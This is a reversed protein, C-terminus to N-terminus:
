ESRGDRGKWCYGSGDAWILSPKDKAYAAKLYPIQGEEVEGIYAITKQVVKGKIRKAHVVSAFYHTKGRVDTKERIRMFM